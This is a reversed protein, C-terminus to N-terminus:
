GGRSRPAAALGRRGGDSSVESPDERESSPCRPADGGPRGGFHHLAALREARRLRAASTTVIATKPFGSSGSNARPPEAPDPRMVSGACNGAKDDGLEGACRAIAWLAFFVALPYVEIRTAPEWLAAHLAVTGVTIPVAVRGAVNRAGLISDAISVAPVIALGGALVSLTTIGLLPPIGPLHSFVWGLLTHLPQGLPHGLGLDHAVLALEASDYVSLDRTMTWAYVIIVLISVTWTAVPNALPLWLTRASLRNM